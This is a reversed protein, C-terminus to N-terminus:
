LAQAGHGQNGRWFYLYWFLPSTIVSGFFLALVWLVRRNRPVRRNAFTAVIYFVLLAGSLVMALLHWDVADGLPFPPPKVGPELSLVYLVFVIAYATPLATLLGLIAVALRKM